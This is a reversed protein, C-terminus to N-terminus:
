KEPAHTEITEADIKPPLRLLQKAKDAAFQYKLKLDPRALYFDNEQKLVDFTLPAEKAEFYVNVQPLNAQPEYGEIRIAHSLTWNEILENARETSFDSQTPKIQWNGETKKELTFNPLALKHITQKPLLAHDIYSTVPSMLQYYFNDSIVYLTDDHSVYRRNNIPETNGFHFPKNTNYTISAKPKDLGYHKPDLEQLVYQAYSEQNLLRTLGDLKLQNALLPYPAQMHWDQGQKEFVMPQQGAREVRIRHITKPDQSSLQQPKSDQKGPEYIAILALVIVVAFLSLNLINRPSM